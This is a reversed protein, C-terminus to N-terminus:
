DPTPREVHDIVLVDVPDKAAKMVLGLQQKLAELLTPSVDGTASTPDGPDPPLAWDVTLDFTGALGTRDVVMRDMGAFANNSLLAALRAITVGRGALRAHGAVRAPAVGLRGCPIPADPQAAVAASVPADECSPNRKLLPGTAGAKALMLRFAPQLRQEVHSRLKFRDQLLMRMMVRMGDKTPAGSARAEIDFQENYVWGPLRLLEAQSRAFAFRIYNILPQNTASFLTGPSFADGPGLPFRSTPPTDTTNPRISAVEFALPKSNPPVQGHVPAICRASVFGSLCIIGLSRSM